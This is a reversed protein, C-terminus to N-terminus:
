GGALFGRFRTGEQIRSLHSGSERKSKKPIIDETRNPQLGEKQNRKEGGKAMSTKQFRFVNKRGQGRKVVNKRKRDRRQSMLVASKWDRRATATGRGKKRALQLKVFCRGTFDRRASQEDKPSQRPPERIRKGKRFNGKL